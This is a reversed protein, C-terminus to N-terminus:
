HVCKSCPTLGKNLAEELTCPYYTGSGCNNLYHYKSGTRTYYVTRETM